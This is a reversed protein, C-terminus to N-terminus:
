LYFGCIIFLLAYVYKIHVTRYFQKIMVPRHKM